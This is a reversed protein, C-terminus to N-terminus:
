VRSSLPKKHLMGGEFRDEQKTPPDRQGHADEDIFVESDTMNRLLTVSQMTQSQFLM